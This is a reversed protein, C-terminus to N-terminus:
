KNREKWAAIQPIVRVRWTELMSAEVLSTPRFVGDNGKVQRQILYGADLAAQTPLNKLTLYGCDRLYPFVDTKPHLGFHKAAQTISMTNESRQLANFSDVKPADIELRREAEIARAKMANYGDQLYQMALIITQQKEIETVANEVGSKLAPTRPLLNEKLKVVQLESLMTAKGNEVSEPFLEKVKKRLTESEYGIANAVEKVTMKQEEGIRDV